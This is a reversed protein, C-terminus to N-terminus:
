PSPSFNLSLSAFASTNLLRFIFVSSSMFAEGASGDVAFFGGQGVAEERKKGCREEPDGKEEVCGERGEMEAIGRWIRRGGNGKMGKKSGGAGEEMGKVGVGEKSRKRSDYGEDKEAGGM